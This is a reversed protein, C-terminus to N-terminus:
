VLILLIRDGMHGLQGAYRAWGKSGQGKDLQAVRGAKKKKKKKKKKSGAASYVPQNVLDPRMALSSKPSCGYKTTDCALSLLM